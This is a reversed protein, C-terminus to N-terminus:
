APWCACGSRSGPRSTASTGITSSSVQHIDAAAKATDMAAVGPGFLAMTVADPAVQPKLLTPGSLARPGTIAELTLGTPAAPAAAIAPSMATAAILVTAALLSRM